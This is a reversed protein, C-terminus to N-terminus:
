ANKEKFNPIEELQMQNRMQRVILGYCPEKSFPNERRLLKMPLSFSEPPSGSYLLTRPWWRKKKATFFEVCNEDGEDSALNTM